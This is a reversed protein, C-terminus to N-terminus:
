NYVAITKQEQNLEELKKIQLVIEEKDNKTVMFKRANAIALGSIQAIIQSLEKYKNIHEPFKVSIIEFKGSVMSKDYFVISFNKEADEINKNRDKKFMITKGQVGNIVPYYKINYPAFFVNLIHFTKEVIGEEENMEGINLLMNFVLSYDATRSSALALKENLSKREKEERWKYIISDVFLKCYSLGVPLIESPLGM